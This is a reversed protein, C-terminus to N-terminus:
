EFGGSSDWRQLNNHSELQGCMKENNRPRRACELVPGRLTLIRRVPWVRAGAAANEGLARADRRCQNAWGPVSSSTDRGSKTLPRLSHFYGCREQSSPAMKAADDRLGSTSLGNGPPCSVWPSRCTRCRCCSFRRERWRPGPAPRISRVALPMAPLRPRHRRSRGRVSGPPSGDRSLSSASPRDHDRRRRLTEASRRDPNQGVEGPFHDPQDVGALDPFGGLAGAVWAAGTSAAGTSAGTSAAGTM